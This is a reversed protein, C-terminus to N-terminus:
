VFRKPLHQSQRRDDWDARRARFRGTQNPHQRHRGYAIRIARSTRGDFFDVKDVFRTDISQGFGSINEPRQVGDIRYQVNGHDDRVHLSGSAKSDKDVGPLRLLVEDFSTADGQGLSNILGQDITYVTTGVEPFLAIRAEKLRAATVVISPVITSSSNQPNAIGAGGQPSAQAVATGNPGGNLNSSIDAIAATAACVAAVFIGATSARLPMAVSRNFSM